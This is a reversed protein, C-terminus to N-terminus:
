GGLATMTILQNRPGIEPKAAIADALFRDALAVNLGQEDWTSAL